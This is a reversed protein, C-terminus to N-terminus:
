RGGRFTGAAMRSAEAIEAQAATALQAVAKELAAGGPGGKASARVRTGAGEATLVFRLDTLSPAPKVMELEVEIQLASASVITMRGRVEDNWFYCSAGEATPSGGYARQVGEDADGWPSWSAWKRLDVLQALVTAPPAAIHASREVASTELKADQEAAQQIGAVVAALAPGMRREASSFLGLRRGELDRDGVLSASVRSGGEDAAITFELDSEAPHPGSLELEVEIRQESADTITIRGREVADGAAWYASSGVGTAPGGYTRQVEGELRERPWWEPWRRLDSIVALVVAPPAAVRVTREARQNRGTGRSVIAGALGIAALAIAFGVKKWM